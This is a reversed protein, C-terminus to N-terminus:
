THRHERQNSWKLALSPAASLIPDLAKALHAIGEESYSVGTTM